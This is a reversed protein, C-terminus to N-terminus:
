YKQWLKEEVIKQIIRIPNEMKALKDKVDWKQGLYKKATTMVKSSHVIFLPFGKRALYKNVYTQGFETLVISPIGQLAAERAITGGVSVVLDAQSVLAATDVFKEPAIISKIKRKSYRAIFFVNGLKTLKKALKKTIDSKGLAYAAKTEMQRIVILPKPFDYEKSLDVNQIWAVEDVGDFQIIRRAGHRSFVHKPIAKSVVVVDALPLTLRNVADAHPTDATLIIPIKLGFAIRCLEVSQHSIALDPPEKKLLKLIQLIRKSSEELRTYLSTPNYKGIVIPNENLLKALALTDPHKRTTLIVEHGSKRLTKAIAVGYRIHKGTCADYWIKM